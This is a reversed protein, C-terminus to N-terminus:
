IFLKILYKIKYEDNFDFIRKILDNDSLFSNNFKM